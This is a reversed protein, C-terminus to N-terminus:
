DIRAVDFSKDLQVIAVFASQYFVITEDRLQFKALPELPPDGPFLLTYDDEMIWTGPSSSQWGGFPYNENFQEKASKPSRVSIFAPLLGLMDINAQPHVMEWGTCDVGYCNIM